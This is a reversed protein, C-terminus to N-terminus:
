IAMAPTTFTACYQVAGGSFLARHLICCQRDTQRDTQRAQGDRRRELQRETQRDRQKDTERNTQRETQRDRQTQRGMDIYKQKLKDTAATVFNDNGNQNM